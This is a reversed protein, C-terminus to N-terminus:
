KAQKAKAGVRRFTSDKKRNLALDQIEDTRRENIQPFLVFPGISSNSLLLVCALGAASAAFIVTVCAHHTIPRRTVAGSVGLLLLAATSTVRVKARRRDVQSTM